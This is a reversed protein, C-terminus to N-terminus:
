KLTIVPRDHDSPWDILLKATSASGKDDWTYIASYERGKIVQVVASSTTGFLGVFAQQGGSNETKVGTPKLTGKQHCSVRLWERLMKTECGLASSGKITVEKTVANWEAVTPPTSGPPPIVAPFGDPGMLTADAPAPTPNPTPLAAGNDVGVQKVPSGVGAKAPEPKPDTAAPDTKNGCGALSAAFATLILAHHLQNM